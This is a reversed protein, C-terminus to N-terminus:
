RGRRIPDPLTCECTDPQHAQSRLTETCTHCTLVVVGCHLREDERLWDVLEWCHGRLRCRLSV